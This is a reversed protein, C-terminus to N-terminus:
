RSKRSDIHLIHLSKQLLKIKKNFHLTFWPLKYMEIKKLKIKLKVYLILLCQIDLGMPGVQPTKKKKKIHNNNSVGVGMEFHVYNGVFSFLQEVGMTEGNLGWNRLYDKKFKILTKFNCQM